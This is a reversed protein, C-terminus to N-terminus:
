RPPGAPPASGGSRPPVAGPRAVAIWPWYGDSDNYSADVVVLGAEAVESTLEDTSSLHFYGIHPTFSDGDTRLGLRISLRALPHRAQLEKPRFFFSAVVPGDTVEAFRRLAEVRTRRYRLHSFSSWGLMSAAYPSRGTLDVLEGSGYRRLTPLDEYRGVLVEVAAGTEAARDAMSRALVESPEFATVEFGRSALEFAERGGGAGGVLIRGPAEPFVREVLEAEWNFLRARFQPTSADYVHTAGYALNNYAELAGDSAFSTILFSRLQDFRRFGRDVLM